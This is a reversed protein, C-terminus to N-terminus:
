GREVDSLTNKHETSIATKLVIKIECSYSGCLLFRSTSAKSHPVIASRFFAKQLIPISGNSILM